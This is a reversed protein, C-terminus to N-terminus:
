SSQKMDISIGSFSKELFNVNSNVSFHNFFPDRSKKARKSLFFHRLISFLLKNEIFSVNHNSPFSPRLVTQTIKSNLIEIIFNVNEMRESLVLM